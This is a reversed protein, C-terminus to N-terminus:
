YAGLQKALEVIRRFGELSVSSPVSHDSSFIYGGNEKMVPVVRRMENEVADLDDWQAANIGGHLVLKDGCTKKLQTPDMGAKVELPNLADLGIEILEPVFPSVDGCSHMHAKIGRAHAWDIARKHVPKLLERYMSMSFFQNHKYGMDDPWFVSDIEYGADLVMQLLALDVDLYHNFMEVCWEPAEILAILLRETGVAWSHAVDFGFWLYAQIWYDKERWTKYDKELRNWNVRNRTPIMRRKAERWSDPDKITFDLFEPTSARHKWDKHTAGWKSTRITYEDTEELVKEQYRPSNDLSINGLHDLDFYDAFNAGAPMGESEWREITAKWPSDIIPIRDATRHEFMRKFREHSTMQPM